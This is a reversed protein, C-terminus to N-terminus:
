PRASPNADLWRAIEATVPKRREGGIDRGRYPSGSGLVGPATWQVDKALTDLFGRGEARYRAAEDATLAMTWPYDVAGHSCHVDLLLVDGDQVLFWWSPAHDVVIM